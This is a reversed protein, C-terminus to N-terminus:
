NMIIAYDHDIRFRPGLLEVLYPVIKAHDILNTAAAGWCSIKNLDNASDNDWGELHEDVLANLDALERASLVDKIVLYGELDFAFKEEETM